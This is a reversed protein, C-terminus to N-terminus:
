SIRQQLSKGYNYRIKAQISQMGTPIRKYLNNQHQRYSAWSSQLGIQVIMQLNKVEKAYEINQAKYVEWEIVSARVSEDYPRAPEVLPAPVYFSNDIIFNGGRGYQAVLYISVAEKFVQVSNVLPSYEPSDTPFIVPLEPILGSFGTKRQDNRIAGRRDNRRSTGKSSPKM